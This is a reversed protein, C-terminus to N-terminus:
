DAHDKCGRAQAQIRVLPEATTRRCSWSCLWSLGFVFLPPLSRQAPSENSLQLGTLRFASEIKNEGRRDPRRVSSQGAPAQTERKEDVDFPTALFANALGKWPRYDQLTEGSSKTNQETCRVEAYPTFTLEPLRL